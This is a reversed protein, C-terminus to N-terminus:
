GEGLIKLKGLPQGAQVDLFGGAGLDVVIAAAM